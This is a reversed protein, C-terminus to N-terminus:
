NFKELGREHHTPATKQASFRGSKREVNMDGDFTVVMWNITM